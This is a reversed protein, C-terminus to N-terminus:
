GNSTFGGSGDGLLIEVSGGSNAAVLDERGDQNMDAIAVSVTGNRMTLQNQPGFTGDGNGLMISLTYPFGVNTAVIDDKADGNLDGVAVSLTYNGAIRDTNPGFTGDGNGLLISISNSTTNSTVVDLRGDRNFDGSASTWPYGGTDSSLFPADFLPDASAEDWLLVTAVIAFVLHFRRMPPRWPDTRCTSLRTDRPLKRGDPGGSGRSFPTGMGPADAIHFNRDVGAGFDFAFLTM